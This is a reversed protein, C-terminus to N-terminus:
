TEAAFLKPSVKSLYIAGLLLKYGNIAFAWLLSAAVLTTESAYAKFFYLATAQSAGVGGVNIFPLSGVVMMVPTYGIIIRLPVFEHFCQILLYFSLLIAAHIPARFCFLGFYDGFRAKRFALFISREPLLRQILGLRPAFHWLLAMGIYGTMGLAGVLMIQRALSGESILFGGLAAMVFIVFMDMLAIFLITSSGELVPVRHTRKLYLPLAVQGAQYNFVAILFTVARAPFMEGFTMACNFRRILWATGTSDLVVMYIMYTFSLLFIYKLDAKSLAASLMDISKKLREVFSLGQAQDVPVVSALVYLFILAVIAWTLVQLLKKKM